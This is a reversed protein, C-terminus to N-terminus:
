GVGAMVVTNARRAWAAQFSGGAATVGFYVRRRPPTYLSLGRPSAYYAIEAPSLVRGYVRVDWVTKLGSHDSGTSGVKFQWGASQQIQINPTASYTGNDLAGNLYLNIVGVTDYTGVFSYSVGATISTSTNRYGFSGPTTNIAFQIKDTDTFQTWWASDESGTGTADGYSMIREYGGTDSGRIIRHCLTMGNPMGTNLLTASDAASLINRTSGDFYAARGDKVFADTGGVTFVKGPSNLV